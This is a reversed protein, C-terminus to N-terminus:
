LYSLMTLFVDVSRSIPFYHNRNKRLLVHMAKRGAEINHYRRQHFHRNRRSFDGINLILVCILKKHGGLNLHQNKPACIIMIKTKDLNITFHWLKLYEFFM